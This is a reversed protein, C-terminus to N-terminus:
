ESPSDQQVSKRVSQKARNGSRVDARKKRGGVWAPLTGVGCHKQSFGEPPHSRSAIRHDIDVRGQNESCGLDTRVRGCNALANGLQHPNRRIANTQFGLSRFTHPRVVRGDSM